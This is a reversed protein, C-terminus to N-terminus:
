ASKKKSRKKEGNPGRKKKPGVRKKKPKKESKPSDDRRKKPKSKRRAPPRAEGSFDPKAVRDVWISNDIVQEAGAAEMLTKAAEPKLEVHTAGPSIEITGISDRSFGGSKCLM